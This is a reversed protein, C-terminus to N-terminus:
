IRVQLDQAHSLTHNSTLSDIADGIQLFQLSRLMRFADIQLYHLLIELLHRVM